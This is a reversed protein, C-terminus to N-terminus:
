RKVALRRQLVGTDASPCGRQYSTIKRRRDDLSNTVTKFVADAFWTRVRSCCALGLAFDLANAANVALGDSALRARLRPLNFIGGPAAGARSTLNGVGGGARGVPDGAAHSGCRAKM